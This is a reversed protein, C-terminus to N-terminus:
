EHILVEKKEFIVEWRYDKLGIKQAEPYIVNNNFDLKLKNYAKLYLLYEEWFYNYNEHDRLGQITMFEINSERGLVEYNMRELIDLEEQHNSMDIIHM